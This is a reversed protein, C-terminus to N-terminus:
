KSRPVFPMASDRPEEISSLSDAIFGVPLDPNDLATRGIKAWHEIQGAITRGEALATNKAKQYLATSILISVTASM